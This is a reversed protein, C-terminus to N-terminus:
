RNRGNLGEEEKFYDELYSFMQDCVIKNECSIVTLRVLNTTDFANFETVEKIPKFNPCDECYKKYELVISMIVLGKEMQM